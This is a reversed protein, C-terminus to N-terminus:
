VESAERGAGCLEGWEGAVVRARRRALVVRKMNVGGASGDSMNVGGAGAVVPCVMPGRCEECGRWWVCAWMVAGCVRLEERCGGTGFCGNLLM